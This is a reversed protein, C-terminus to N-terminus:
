NEYNLIEQERAKWNAYYVTNIQNVGVTRVRFNHLRWVLTLIEYRKIKDSPLKTHLRGFSGQIARMGWEVAQRHKTIIAHKKQTQVNAREIGIANERPVSLM